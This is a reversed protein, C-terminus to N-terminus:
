IQIVAKGLKTFWEPERLKVLKLFADTFETTTCNLGPYMGWKKLRDEYKLSTVSPMAAALYGNAKVFPIPNDEVHRVMNHISEDEQIVNVGLRGDSLKIIGAAKHFEAELQPTKEQLPLDGCMAANHIEEPVMWKGPERVTGDPETVLTDEYTLDKHLM